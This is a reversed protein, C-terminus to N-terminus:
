GPLPLTTLEFAIQMGDVGLQFIEAVLQGGHSALVPLARRQGGGFESPLSKKCNSSVM